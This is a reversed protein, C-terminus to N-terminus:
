HRGTQAADPSPYCGLSTPEFSLTTFLALAVVAALFLSVGLVIAANHGRVGQRVRTITASSKGLEAKEVRNPNHDPRQLDEDRYLERTAATTLRQALPNDRRRRKSIVSYAVAFAERSHDTLSRSATARSRAAATLSHPSLGLAAPYSVLVSAGSLQQAAFFFLLLQGLLPPPLQTPRSNPRASSLAALAM